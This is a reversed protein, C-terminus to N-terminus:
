LSEVGKILNRYYDKHSKLPLKILKQALLDTVTRGYFEQLQWCTGTDALWQWATLIEDKTNEEGSFGEAISCAIYNTM